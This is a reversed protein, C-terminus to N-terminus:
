ITDKKTEKVVTKTKFGIKDSVLIATRAKKQCGNAYYMNQEM